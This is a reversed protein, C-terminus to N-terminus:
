PFKVNINVTTRPSVIPVVIVTGAGFPGSSLTTTTPTAASTPPATQSPATAAPLLSLAASTPTEMTQAVIDVPRSQEKPPAPAAAKVITQPEEVKPQGGTDVSGAKEDARASTEAPKEAPKSEGTKQEEKKGEDTKAAVSESKKEEEKKAESKPKEAPMTDKQHQNMEVATAPRIVPPVNPNIVTMIQGAHITRVETPRNMSYGYGTGEKFAAGTVGSQHYVFFITGRVGVVCTPTHVEYKSKGSPAGTVAMLVNQIKGRFLDLTANREGKEQVFENVRLRSNEALRLISGDPFAVECKAKSKTRIIDGVNLPDGINVPRAEVGPSTVDVNGEVSTFNGATAAHVMLPVFLLLALIVLGLLKRKM